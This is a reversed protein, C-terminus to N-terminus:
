FRLADSICNESLSPMAEAKNRRGRKCRERETLEESTRGKAVKNKMAEKVVEMM